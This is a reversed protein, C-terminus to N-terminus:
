QAFLTRIGRFCSQLTCLEEHGEDISTDLVTWSRGEIWPRIFDTAAIAVRVARLEM